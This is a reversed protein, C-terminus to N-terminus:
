QQSPVWRRKLTVTGYQATRELHDPDTVLIQGLDIGTMPDVLSSRLSMITLCKQLAGYGELPDTRDLPEPIWAKVEFRQLRANWREVSRGGLFTVRGLGPSTDSLYPLRGLVREVASFLYEATRWYGRKYFLNGTAVWSVLRDAQQRNTPPLKRIYTPTVEEGAFAEIGCSERFNGESYSKRMNVKCNYQRLHDGVATAEQAPVIIDDGYVYVDRSVDFVTRPNVPLKREWLLAEVCATYFYMAEVPFCLASGMSAFKRLPGIVTGDPLQAHTSRCSEIADRLDPVCDFMAMALDHPVRDSAESLDITALQGSASAELAHARNIEQDAFNVHGKSWKSTEITEYLFSRIGQQAYQMCCPEIAIIRPGKQTKPVPTVRVPLESEPPVVSVLELEEADVAGISYATEILPFYPELRDHWMTFRYKQNGSVREATAGPGHVPVVSALDFRALASAWLIHAVDVYRRRLEDRVAFEALDHEVAAFESLAKDVREPRCDIEIKKFALCIQRVAEVIPSIDIPRHRAQENTVGTERDFVLSLMGQLFAPIAGCKKFSRFHTPDIRGQALARTFDDAFSPLAITLFSLGEHEVRSRITELDRLDSAVAVCKAVADQYVCQAIELQVTALSKV